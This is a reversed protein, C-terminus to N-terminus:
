SKSNEKEELLSKLEKLQEEVRDLQRKLDDNNDSVMADVFVSNIFSMGVIGGMILIGCFYITSLRGIFPTSVAAIRNPIEYWGEITCMRFITYVSNTPTDFYEPAIQGFLDCSVLGFIVVLIFYSLLLVYSQRIALKFGSILKAIGPFLHITRLLRLIRMLRLVFLVSLNVMKVPYVFQIIFPISLLVLVFDLRNWGSKLYERIGYHSIKVIMEILFVIACVFEVVEMWAWKSNCEQLYISIANILIFGYIVKNNLFLRKLFNLIM